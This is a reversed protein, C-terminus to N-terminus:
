AIKLGPNFPVEARLFTVSQDAICGITASDGEIDIVKIAGIFRDNEYINIATKGQEKPSRRIMLM